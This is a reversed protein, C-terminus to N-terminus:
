NMHFQACNRVACRHLVTQFISKLCYNSTAKIKLNGTYLQMMKDEKANERNETTDKLFAGHWVVSPFVPDPYIGIGFFLRDIVPHIM